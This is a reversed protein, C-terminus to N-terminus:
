GHASRALVCVASRGGLMRIGAGLRDDVCTTSMSADSPVDTVGLHGKAVVKVLGPLIRARKKDRDRVALDTSDGVRNQTHPTGESGKCLQLAALLATKVPLFQADADRVQGAGM